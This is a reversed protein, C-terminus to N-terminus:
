QSAGVCAIAVTAANNIDTASELKPKPADALETAKAAVAVLIDIADSPKNLALKASAADVKALMNTRNADATGGLFKGAVIADKVYGVELSCTEANSAQAMGAGFAFPLAAIAVLTRINKAM